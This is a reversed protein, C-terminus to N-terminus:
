TKLDALLYSYLFHFKLTDPVLKPSTNVCYFLWETFIFPWQASYSSNVKVVPLNFVDSYGRHFCNSRM